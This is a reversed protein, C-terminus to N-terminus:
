FNGVSYGLNKCAENLAFEEFSDKPPHDAILETPKLTQITNDDKDILVIQSISVMNLKCSGTISYQIASVDKFGSDGDNNYSKLVDFFIWNEEKSGDQFDLPQLTGQGIYLKYIPSEGILFWDRNGALVPAPLVLMALAPLLSSFLFMRRPKMM